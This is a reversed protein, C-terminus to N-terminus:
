DAAAQREQPTAPLGKGWDGGREARLTQTRHRSSRHLPSRAAKTQRQQQQKVGQRVFRVDRLVLIVSSIFGLLPLQATGQRVLLRRRGSVHALDHGGHLHANGGRM